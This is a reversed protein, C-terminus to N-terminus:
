EDIKTNKGYRKIKQTTTKELEEDIIKFGKIHKYNPIKENVRQIAKQIEQKIQEKTPEINLIEKIADINPFIKAKVYTEKKDKDEVGIVISEAVVIEENLYYELEEPYINKGNKTVIVSKSRGTVYLFGNEDIKGLDGTHFWGDIIAKNTAKSDKYYGIMVNPGRTIIEGVGDEGPNEIKYEVNPIPLGVADDRAFFDTNGAVLPSCETLGYGQVVRLGFKKFSASIEPNMSAAGVIFIGMNGGLNKKIKRKVIPKIFFPLTDMIHKEEKFYKHNLSKELGKIIKKHVNELLLPVCLIVNPKYEQMNQSIYRLGDCFAVTGGSFIVLLYGLTCEYTHHIPLISLVKPGFSLNIIGAVSMINSCVNKHSLCVAKSSGTTGSTFLLIHMDNPNIKINEYNKDGKNLLDIGNELIENWKNNDEFDIFKYDKENIKDIKKNVENIFKNDGMIASSESVNIFNIIDEIHLEKDLPVVTGIISIAIYSVAWKYSNKGILCIAKDKLGMDILSTTLAMVDNKYQQYTIGVIKGEDNKVKFAFRTRYKECAKELLDKYDTINYTKIYKQELQRVLEPKEQM